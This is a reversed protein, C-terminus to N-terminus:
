YSLIALWVAALVGLRVLFPMNIKAFLLAASGGIALVTLIGKFVIGSTLFAYIEPGAIEYVGVVVLAFIIMAKVGVPINARVFGLVALLGIVGLIIKFFIGSTLVSYIGEGFLCYVLVLAALILLIKGFPSSVLGSLSFSGLGTRTRHKIYGFFNPFYGDGFTSRGTTIKFSGNRESPRSRTGREKPKRSEKKPTEIDPLFEKAIKKMEPDNLILGKSYEISNQKNNKVYKRGFRDINIQDEAAQQKTLNELEEWSMNKVGNKKANRLTKKLVDAKTARM